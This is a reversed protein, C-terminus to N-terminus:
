YEKEVKFCFCSMVRERRRKERWCCGNGRRFRELNKSSSAHLELEQIGM